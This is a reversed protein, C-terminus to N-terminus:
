FECVLHDVLAHWKPQRAYYLNTDNQRPSGVERDEPTLEYIM